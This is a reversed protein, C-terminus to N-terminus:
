VSSVQSIDSCNLGKLFDRTDENFKTKEELAAMHGSKEYIVFRNLNGLRKAIDENVCVPTIWDFRGVWVFAPIQVFPLQERLDYKSMETNYAANHTEYQPKIAKAMLEGVNTETQAAIHQPLTYLPALSAFATVLDEQNKSRGTLIRLLQEPEPKVTPNTWAEKMSNLVCWHAFQATTDGVLIGHLHHPHAIAYELTIMGGHSAGIM